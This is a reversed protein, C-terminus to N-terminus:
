GPDVAVSAHSIGPAVGIRVFVDDATRLGLWRSAPGSGELWVERHRVRQIRAGLRGRAEAAVIPEL